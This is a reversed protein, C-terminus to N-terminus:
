ACKGSGATSCRTSAPEAPEPPLVSTASCYTSSLPAGVAAYGALGLPEGCPMAPRHLGSPRWRAMIGCGSRSCESHAHGCRGGAHRPAPPAAGSAADGQSRM